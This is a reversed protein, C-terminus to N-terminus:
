LWSCIPLYRYTYTQGWGSPPSQATATTRSHSHICSSAPIGQEAAAAAVSVSAPASSTGAYGDDEVSDGTPVCGVSNIGPLLRVWIYMCLYVYLVCVFGVACRQPCHATDCCLCLAPYNEQLKSNGSCSLFLPNQPTEDASERVCLISVACWCARLVFAVSSYVFMVDHWM